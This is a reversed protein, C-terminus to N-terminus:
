WWGKGQGWGAILGLCLSVVGAWVVLRLGDSLRSGHRPRGGEIVGPAFPFSGPLMHPCDIDEACEGRCVGLAECSLRPRKTPEKKPVSM